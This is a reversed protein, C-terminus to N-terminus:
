RKPISLLKVHIMLLGIMSYAELIVVIQHRWVMYNTFDLKVTMMSAMNLLLLLSPNVILTTTTTTTSPTTSSSSSPTSATSAMLPARIGHFSISFCYLFFFLFVSFFLHLFHFLEQHFETRSEENILM